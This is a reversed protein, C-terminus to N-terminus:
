REAIELRKRLGEVMAELRALSEASLPVKENAALKEQVFRMINKKTPRGQIEYHKKIMALDSTVLVDEIKVVKKDGALEPCLLVMDQPLGFEEIYKSRAGRGEKDGDLVIIFKRGWGLYLAVIPGLDNAGSSPVVPLGSDNRIVRTYYSLIYFDSKGEVLIGTAPLDLRAPAFDLKDLIPQFYTSKDPNEGVFRRYRTVVIENEAGTLASDFEDAEYSIAKNEVIYTQELWYPNIMYHSHTSYILVNRAGSIKPFSELLQEQARAHLNSAPEDFIFITGRDHVRRSARFQTFLLFCFFWRFGLSRESIAYKTVGDKIFFQVFVNKTGQDDVEPHWEIIIEKRSLKDRFIENWKEFVVRSVAASAKFMVPDIQQKVTSGSGLIRALFEIPNQPLDDRRVRSVIHDEIRLTEGQFDLIDQFVRKYFLNKKDDDNGSLYIKAPFDFVFTPFYTITPLREKLFSVIEQWNSDSCRTYTRKGYGKTYFLIDWVTAASKFQSSEYTLNADITFESPLQDSDLRVVFKEEVFKHLAGIDADEIIVRASVSITDSFNALRHKPILDSKETKLFSRDSFIVQNDKDPSFSHIAELLTTKGSENLGVLTFIRGGSNPELEITTSKIGKFNTISFSKYRM